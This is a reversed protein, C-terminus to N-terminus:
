SIKVKQRKKLEITKLGLNDLMDTSNVLCHM